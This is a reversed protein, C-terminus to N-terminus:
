RVTQFQPAVESLGSLAAACRNMKASFKVAAYYPDDDPTRDWYTAMPPLKGYASLFWFIAAGFAFAAAGVDLWNKM